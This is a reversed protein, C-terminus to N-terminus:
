GSGDSPLDRVAPGVQRVQQRILETLWRWGGGSCSILLLPEEPGHGSKQDRNGLAHRNGEQQVIEM